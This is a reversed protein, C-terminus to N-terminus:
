IKVDTNSIRDYYRARYLLRKKGDASNDTFGSRNHLVNNCVVGEGPNLRYRLIYENTEQLLETIRARAMQLLPEDKWIINRQRASYRMHLNGASDLSFIPGTEAGRIEQGDEQNGPITMADHQMLAEIMLPDEDRLQLYLLEHDLFENEGGSEADMACHMLIARIQHESDNYYGDSHWSLPRNSYPIYGAHRGENVVQLSTISDEDACLNGDLHQLGFQQGFRRLVTKDVRIKTTYIAINNRQVIATLRNREETTPKALDDIAIKIANADQARGALKQERWQGYEEVNHLHYPSKELVPTHRTLSM